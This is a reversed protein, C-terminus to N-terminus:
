ESLAVDSSIGQKGLSDSLAQEFRNGRGMEEPCDQKNEKGLLIDKLCSFRNIDTKRLSVLISDKCSSATKVIAWQADLNQDQQAVDALHDHLGKLDVSDISTNRIHDTGQLSLLIMKNGISYERVTKLGYCQLLYNEIDEM